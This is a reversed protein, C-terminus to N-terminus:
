LGKWIAAIKEIPRGIIFTGIIGVPLMFLLEGYEGPPMDWTIPLLQAGSGALRIQSLVLATWMILSLGVAVPRIWSTRIDKRDDAIIHSVLQQTKDTSELIKAKIQASLVDRQAQREIKRVAVNERGKIYSNVAPDVFSRVAKWISLFWM